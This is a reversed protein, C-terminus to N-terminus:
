EGADSRRAAMARAPTRSPAGHSVGGRVVFRLAGGPPDLPRQGSSSTAAAGGCGGCVDDCPRRAPFSYGRPSAGEIGNAQPIAFRRAAAFSELTRSSTM